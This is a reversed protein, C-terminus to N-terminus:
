CLRDAGLQEMRRQQEQNKQACGQRSCREEWPLATTDRSRRLLKWPLAQWRQLSTYSLSGWLNLGVGPLRVKIPYTSEPGKGQPSRPCLPPQCSHPSCISSFMAM